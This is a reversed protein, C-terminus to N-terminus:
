AAENALVRDLQVARDRHRLLVLEASVELAHSRQFSQVPIGVEM